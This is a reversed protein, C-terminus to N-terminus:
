LTEELRIIFQKPNMQKGFFHWPVQKMVKVEYKAKEGCEARSHM